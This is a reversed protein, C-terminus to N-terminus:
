YNSVPSILPQTPISGTKCQPDGQGVLFSFVGGVGPGRNDGAVLVVTSNTALSPTWDFGTPTVNVTQPIVFSQGGPVVGM